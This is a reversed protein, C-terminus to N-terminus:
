EDDPCKESGITGPDYCPCEGSATVVNDKLEVIELNAKM